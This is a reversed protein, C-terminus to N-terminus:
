SNIIKPAKPLFRGRKCKSSVWAQFGGIEDSDVVFNHKCNPDNIPELEDRRIVEYEENKDHINRNDNSNDQNDFM